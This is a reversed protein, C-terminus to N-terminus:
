RPFMNDSTMPREPPLAAAQRHSLADIHNRDLSLVIENDGTDILEAQKLAVTVIHSASRYRTTFATNASLQYIDESIFKKQAPVLETEVTMHWMAHRMVSQARQPPVSVAELIPRSSADLYPLNVLAIQEVDEVVDNFESSLGSQTRGSATSYEKRGALFYMPYAYVAPRARATVFATAKIKHEGGLGVMLQQTSPNYFITRPVGEGTPVPLFLEFVQHLYKEKDIQDQVQGATKFLDNTVLRGDWDDILKQMALNGPYQATGIPAATQPPPLPTPAGNIPEAGVPSSLASVIAATAIAGILKGRGANNSIGGSSMKM